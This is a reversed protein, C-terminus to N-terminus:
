PMPPAGPTTRSEGGNVPRVLYYSLLLALGIGIPIAGVAWIGEEGTDLASLLVVLGLGAFLIVLGGILLGQRSRSMPGTVIEGPDEPPIPPLQSPDLGREIAVIRERRALEQLRQRGLTKIIGATIGGIIAVVPISMAMLGFALGSVDALVM